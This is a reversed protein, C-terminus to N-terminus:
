LSAIGGRRFSGMEAATGRGSFGPGADRQGQNGGGGGSHPSPPTYTPAASKVKAKDKTDAKKDFFEKKEALAKDLLKQQGETFNTTKFKGFGITNYGKAKKAELKDIYNQLQTQYNNTGFMSAVNQGRLVSEPGYQMLGSSSNKGIMGGIGSLYDVQGALNPSYNRSGPRMPDFARGLMVAGGLLAAPGMLSSMNGGMLSKIGQNLGAKKAMNGLDFTNGGLSIAYKPNQSQQDIGLLKAAYEFGYKAVLSSFLAEM